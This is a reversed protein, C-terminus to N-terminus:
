AGFRSLILKDRLRNTGAMNPVSLATVGLSAVGRAFAKGRARLKDEWSLGPTTDTTFYSSESWVSLGMAKLAYGFAKKHHGAVAHDMALRAVLNIRHQHTTRHRLGEWAGGFLDTVEQRRIAAHEELGPKRLDPEHRFLVTGANIGVDPWTRGVRYNDFGTEQPFGPVLVTNASLVAAEAWGLASGGYGNREHALALAGALQPYRPDDNQMGLIQEHLLAAAAGFNGAAHFTASQEAM